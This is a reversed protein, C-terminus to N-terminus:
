VLSNSDLNRCFTARHIITIGHSLIASRHSLTGYGKHRDLLYAPYEPAIREMMRDRTVKAIISAAAITYSYREGHDFAVVKGWPALLPDTQLGGPHSLFEHPQGLFIGGPLVLPMADVLAFAPKQDVIAVLQMVARRMAWLTAPVIGWRDIQQPGVFALAFDSQELLFGYAKDRQLPSLLKSDRLLPSYAYVMAAAVVLPGALCGRGVEDIGCPVVSYTAALEEFYHERPPAPIRPSISRNKEM